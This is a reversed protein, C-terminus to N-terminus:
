NAPSETVIFQNIANPPAAVRSILLIRTVSRTSESRVVDSRM